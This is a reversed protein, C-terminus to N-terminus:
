SVLFQNDKDPENMHNNYDIIENSAIYGYIRKNWCSYYREM